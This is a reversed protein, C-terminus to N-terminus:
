RELRRIRFSRRARLDSGENRATCMADSPRAPSAYACVPEDAPSALGGDDDMAVDRERVHEDAEVPDHLEGVEAHRLHEALRL